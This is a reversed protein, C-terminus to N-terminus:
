FNKRGEEKYSYVGVEPTALPGLTDPISGFDEPLVVKLTDGFSITCFSPRTSSWEGIFTLPYCGSDIELNWFTKGNAALKMELIIVDHTNSAGIEM